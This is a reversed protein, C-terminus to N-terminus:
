RGGIGNENSHILKHCKSCLMLINRLVYKGGMNGRQIRHPELKGVKKEHKKCNECEFNIFERLLDIKKKTLSM